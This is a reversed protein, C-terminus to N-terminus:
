DPLVAPAPMLYTRGAPSAWLSSGDPRREVEWGHHTKLLHHWTCESRLNTSSTAGADGPPGGGPDPRGAKRPFPKEHDLQSHQAARECHPGQCTRDRAVVYDRLAKPPEYTTTGYDLLHGSVPDTVLRRWAADESLLRAIPAPIPGFGPIEAPNDPMALLTPLDFVVQVEIPQGQPKPAGEHALEEKAWRVLTDARYGALNGVRRPDDSTGGAQDPAVRDRAAKDRAQDRRACADLTKWVIEGDIVPMTALITCLGNEPNDCRVVERKSAAQLHSLAEGLPDYRILARRVCRKFAALTQHPARVLVREEVKGAVEATRDGTLDVLAAVQSVSVEGAELAAATRPLRTALERALAVRRDAQGPSLSLGIRVEEVGTDPHGSGAGTDPELGAVRVNARHQRAAVWRAVREWAQAVTMAERDTLPGLEIADLFGVLEPSPPGSLLTDLLSTELSENGLLNTVDIVVGDGHRAVTAAEKLSLPPWTDIM